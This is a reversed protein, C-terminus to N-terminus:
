LGRRKRGRPDKKMEKEGPIEDFIAQAVKRTNGTQSMYAVLAKM